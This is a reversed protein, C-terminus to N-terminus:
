QSSSGKGLRDRMELFCLVKVSSQDFISGESLLELGPIQENLDGERSSGVRGWEGRSAGM